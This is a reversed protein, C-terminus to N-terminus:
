SKLRLINELLMENIVSQTVKASKIKYYGRDIFHKINRTKESRIEPTNTIIEYAKKNLDYYQYMLRSKDLSTFEGKNRDQLSHYIPDSIIRLAVAFQPIDFQRQESRVVLVHFGFRYNDHDPHPTDFTLYRIDDKELPPQRDCVFYIGGLSINVLIGQDTWLEQSHPLHIHCVRPESIQIRGFRRREPLPKLPNVRKIIM